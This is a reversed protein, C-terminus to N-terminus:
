RVASIRTWFNLTPPQQGGADPPPPVEGKDTFSMEGVLRGDKSSLSYLDYGAGTGHHTRATVNWTAEIGSLLQQFAQRPLFSLFVESRSVLDKWGIDPPDKQVREVLGAGQYDFTAVVIGKMVAGSRLPDYTVQPWYIRSLQASGARVAEIAPVPPSVYGNASPGLDRILEEATEGPFAGVQQAVVSLLGAVGITWVTWM